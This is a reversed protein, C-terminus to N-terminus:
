YLRLMSITYDGTTLPIEPYPYTVTLESGRVIISGTDTYKCRKIVYCTRSEYDLYFEDYHDADYFLLDDPLVYDINESTTRNRFRIKRDPMYQTDSPYLNNRPYLYSISTTTPHIKIMVPESENVNDLNFAVDSEGSTTIDSIDSIQSTLEDVSQTLTAIKANQEGVDSIVTTISQEQENITTRMTKLQSAVNATIINTTEEQTKIPLKVKVTGMAIGNFTTTNDYLTTYTNNGTTYTVVDWCDLSLDMRNECTLNTITFGQVANYINTIDEQQTIFINDNRIYLTNKMGTAETWQGNVYIYYKMDTTLYYYSTTSIGTTPFADVTIVNGGAQYKQRGNDYCVRTLQYTDGVEFKKSELANIQIGSNNNLPVISCTGDREIKANGGFLEALYMIYQKGSITNDYFYIPKNNNVNPYTGYDVGYYGCIAKFM